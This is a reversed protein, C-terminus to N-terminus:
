VLRMPVFRGDASSWRQLLRGGDDCVGQAQLDAIIRRFRVDSQAAACIAHMALTSAPRRAWALYDFDASRGFAASIAEAREAQESPSLRPAELAPAFQRPAQRCLDLFEPLSPPTPKSTLAKLAHAIAEPHDAFGALEEAWVRRVNDIDSHKWRDLFASGYLAEMRGFIREIWASPM